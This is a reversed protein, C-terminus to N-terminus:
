LIVTSSKKRLLWGNCILGRYNNNNKPQLNVKTTFISKKGFVNNLGFHQM